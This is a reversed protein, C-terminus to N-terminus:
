GDKVDVKANPSQGSNKCGSWLNDLSTVIRVFSRLRIRAVTGVRFQREEM